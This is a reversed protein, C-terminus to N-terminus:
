NTTKLVKNLEKWTESDRLVAEMYQVAQRGVLRALPPQVFGYPNGRTLKLIKENSKMIRLETEPDLVVSKAKLLNCIDNKTVYYPLHIQVYNKDSAYKSMLYSPLFSISTVTGVISGFEGSEKEMKLIRGNKLLFKIYEERSNIIQIFIRRNKRTSDSIATSNFLTQDFDKLSLMGSNEFYGGDIFHGKGQVKAAPSFVPFRNTCSAAYLFPLSQTSNPFSLLDTSDFFTTDFTDKSMWVSCAIGRQIHTGASNGILAPFFKNAGRQKLYLGAWFERFSSQLMSTDAEIFGDYGAMARKARDKPSGMWEFFKGPLLEYILDRGLLFTLDLSLFNTSGLKVIDEHHTGMGKNQFGTFVAHGIAGGSVGSMAVTQDLINQGQFRTLSDLILQNWINAKLGGGFSSIYFITSKNKFHANVDKAFTAQSITRAPNEPITELLHLNNGITGAVIAWVILLPVRKPLLWVFFFKGARSKYKIEPQRYYFYHKLPIIFFGYLLICQALLIVLPNFFFVARHAILIISLSFFGCGAIAYLFHLDNGLVSSKRFLRIASYFVASSYMFAYFGGFTYGSWGFNQISFATAVLTLFWFVFTARILNQQHRKTKNAFTAFLLRYSGLCSVVYLAIQGWKWLMINKEQGSFLLVTRAHVQVLVYFVSMLLLLGWLNRLHAVLFTAFSDRQQQRVKQQNEHDKYTIFGWGWAVKKMQWQITGPHDSKYELYIPYHSLIFTLSLLLGAFLLFNVPFTLSEYESTDLLDILITDSQDLATIFVLLACMLLSIRSASLISMLRSQRNQLKQLLFKM